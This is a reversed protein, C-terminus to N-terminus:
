FTEFRTGPAKCVPCRDPPSDKTMLFGCAQCVQFHDEPELMEEKDKVFRQTIYNQITNVKKGWTLARLVGRDGLTEAKELAEAYQKKTKDQLIKLMSEAAEEPQKGSLQEEAKKQAQIKFSEALLTFLEQMNMKKQKEAIQAFNSFICSMAAYPEKNQELIKETLNTM